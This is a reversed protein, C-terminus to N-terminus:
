PTFDPGYQMLVIMIVIGALLMVALGIVLAKVSIPPPPPTVGSERETIGDLTIASATGVSRRGFASMASSGSVVGSAPKGFEDSHHTRSAKPMFRGGEEDTM